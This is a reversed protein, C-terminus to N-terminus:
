SRTVSRCTRLGALCSYVEQIRSSMQKMWSPPVSNRFIGNQVEEMAPSMNLAGDLGLTLEELSRKIFNLLDTM